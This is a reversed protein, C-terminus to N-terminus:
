FPPSRPSSNRRAPPDHARVPEDVASGAIMAPDIIVNASQAEAIVAQLKRGSGAVVTIATRHGWHRGDEIRTGSFDSAPLTESFHSHLTALYNRTDRDITEHIHLFPSTWLGMLVAIVGILGTAVRM